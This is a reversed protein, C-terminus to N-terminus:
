NLHWLRLYLVNAFCSKHSCIYVAHASIGSFTVSKTLQCNKQSTFLSWSTRLTHSDKEKVTCIGLFPLLKGPKLSETSTQLFTDEKPFFNTSASLEPFGFTNSNYKFIFQLISDCKKVMLAADKCSKQVEQTLM